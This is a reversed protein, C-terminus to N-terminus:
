SARYLQIHHAPELANIQGETHIRRPMDKERGRRRKRTHAYNLRTDLSGCMYCTFVLDGLTPIPTPPEEWSDEGLPQYSQRQRIPGQVEANYDLDDDSDGLDYWPRQFTRPLSMHDTRKRKSSEGGNYDLVEKGVSIAKNM